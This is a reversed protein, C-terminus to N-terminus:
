RNDGPSGGAEKPYSSSTHNARLWGHLAKQNGPVENDQDGRPGVCIWARSKLQSLTGQGM